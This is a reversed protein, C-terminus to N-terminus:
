KEKFTLSGRNKSRGRREVSEGVRHDVLSPVWNLYKEGRHRLFRQILTDKGSGHEVCWKKLEKDTGGLYEWREWFRLILSAYGEPLYTCLNCSFGGGNIWRTGETLDADRMSYFNIVNSSYGEIARIIKEKFGETFIVDDELMVCADHEVMGLALLYNLISSHRQDVVLELGPVHAMLYPHYEVREPCTTVVWRLTQM